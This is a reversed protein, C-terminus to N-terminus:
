LRYTPSETRIQETNTEEKPERYNPKAELVSEIEKKVIYLGFHSLVKRHMTTMASPILWSRFHDWPGYLRAAVGHGGKLNQWQAREGM